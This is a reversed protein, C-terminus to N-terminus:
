LNFHLQKSRYFGYDWKNKEVYCNIKKNFKKASKDDPFTDWSRKEFINTCDPRCLVSIYAGRARETVFQKKTLASPNLSTLKQVHDSQSIIITNGAIAVIATNFRIQLEATLTKTDKSDSRTKLTADHEM